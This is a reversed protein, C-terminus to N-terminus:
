YGFGKPGTEDAPVVFVEYKSGIDLLQNCLAISTAESDDSGVKKEIKEENLCALFLWEYMEARAELYAEKESFEQFREDNPSMTEFTQQNVEYNNVEKQVVVWMTRMEHSLLGISQSGEPIENKPAYLVLDEDTVMLMQQQLNRFLAIKKLSADM